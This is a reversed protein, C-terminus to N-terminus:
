GPNTITIGTIPNHHTLGPFKRFDADQTHVTAHNMLAAAAIQADSVLNGGTGILALLDVTQQLLWAGDLRTVCPCALWAQMETWAEGVSYPSLFIRPNTSIRLFAFLVADPMGVEDNGSLLSQWWTLCSQHDPAEARYAHIILQVDPIIM